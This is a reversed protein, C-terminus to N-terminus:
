PPPAPLGVPALYVAFADIGDLELLADLAPQHYGLIACTGAGIAETALYLNQCVHGAEIAIM